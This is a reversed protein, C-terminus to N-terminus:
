TGPGFEKIKTCNEAFFHAFYYTLVGVKPTQAGGPFGPDHLSCPDFEAKKICIINRVKEPDAVQRTRVKMKM